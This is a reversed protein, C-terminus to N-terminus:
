HDVKETLFVSPSSSSQFRWQSDLGFHVLHPQTPRHRVDNSAEIKSKATFHISPPHGCKPSSLPHRISIKTPMTAQADHAACRPSHFALSDRSIWHVSYVTCCKEKGKLENANANANANKPALYKVGCLSRWASTM